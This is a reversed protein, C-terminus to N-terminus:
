QGPQRRDRNRTPSQFFLLASSFGIPTAMLFDNQVDCDSSTREGGLEYQGSWRGVYFFDHGFGERVNWALFAEDKRNAVRRAASVFDM